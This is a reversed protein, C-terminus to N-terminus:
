NSGDKINEEPADFDADTEKADPAEDYDDGFHPEVPENNPTNKDEAM